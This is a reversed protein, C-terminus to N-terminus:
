TFLEDISCNFLRALQPLLRTRPVTNGIEWQTVTVRKVKLFKAVDSQSLGSKLRLEKLKNLTYM